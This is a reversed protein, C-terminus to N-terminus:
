GVMMGMEETRGMEATFGLSSGTEGRVDLSHTVLEKKIGSGSVKQVIVETISGIM